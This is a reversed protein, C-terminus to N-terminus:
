VENMGEGDNNESSIDEEDQRNDNRAREAYITSAFLIVTLLVLFLHRDSM